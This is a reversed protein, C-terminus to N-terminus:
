RGMVICLPRKLRDREIHEQCRPLRGGVPGLFTIMGADDM